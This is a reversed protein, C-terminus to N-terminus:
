KIFKLIENLKKKERILPKYNKKPYGILLGVVMEKNKVKLIKNIEKEYGKLSGFWCSGLNNSTASLMLNQCACSVSALNSDRNKLEKPMYVFIINQCGGLDFYFKNAVEQLKPSLKKFDKKYLVLSKRLMKSIKEIIEESSVIKFEWPQSNCASPAKSADQVLKKLIKKPVKKKEFERISHRNNIVKNFEMM